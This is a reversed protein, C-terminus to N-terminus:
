AASTPAARLLMELLERMLGPCGPWQHSDLCRAAESLLRAALDLATGRGLLVALNLNRGLKTDRELDCLDDIVQYALGYLEGFRTVQLLLDGDAGAAMAGLRCAARFLAGTKLEAIRRAGVLGAAVPAALEEAQGGVMGRWGAAGALEAVLAAAVAREGSSAPGPAQQGRTLVYFAETLLADGALIAEAEGYKVHLTPRGRREVDDDMSPLDDHVLSYCHVMEIALAAPLADGYGGGAAVAVALCLLPRVRKGAACAYAMAEALPGAIVGPGPLARELDADFQARAAELGSPWEGQTV